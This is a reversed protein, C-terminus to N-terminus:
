IHKPFKPLLSHMDTHKYLQLPKSEARPGGGTREHGQTSVRALPILQILTSVKRVEETYQPM